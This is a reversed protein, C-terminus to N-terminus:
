RSRRYPMTRVKWSSPTGKPRWAQVRGRRKKEEVHAAHALQPPAETPKEESDGGPTAVYVM